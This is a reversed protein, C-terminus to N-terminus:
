YYPIDEMNIWLSQSSERNQLSDLAENALKDAVKNHERKVHIYTITNFYMEYNKVADYLPILNPSTIKYIGNLQNIILQSDGYVNLNQIKNNAALKLGEVLAMYEAVNNTGNVCVKPVSNTDIIENDKYLVVGLGINQCPNGRCAGDFYLNYKDDDIFLKNIWSNIQEVWLERINNKNFSTDVNADIILKNTELNELWNEHYDHCKSLYELPISEGERNRKKVRTDCITPDAKVYIIGSVKINKIFHDFWMNYITYEDHEIMGDDYLMKAFVNRDTEVSRETIIIKYKKEDVINQLLQLRSIYAMMQFRFAYKKTDKYLNTLIPTGEVDKIDKWNDVPEPVFCISDNNEYYNKLDTYLTSKGSGINGDISIIIPTNM